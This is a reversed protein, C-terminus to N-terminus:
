HTRPSAGAGAQDFTELRDVMSTCTRAMQLIHAKMASSQLYGALQTLDSALRLCDLDDRQLQGSKSM